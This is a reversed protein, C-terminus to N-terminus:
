PGQSTCAAANPGFTVASIADNLGSSLSSFMSLGDVHVTLRTGGPPDGDEWLTATCSSPLYIVASSAKNNIDGATPHIKWLRDYDEFGRFYQTATFTVSTGGYHSDYYLTVYAEDKSILRDTFEAVRVGFDYGNAVQSHSDTAESSYLIPSGQASVYLNGSKAFDCFTANGTNQSSCQFSRTIPPQSDITEDLGLWSTDDINGSADFSPERVKWISLKPTGGAGRYSGVAYVDHTGCERVLSINNVAEAGPSRPFATLSVTSWANTRSILAGTEDFHWLRVFDFHDNDGDNGGEVTLILYRNKQNFQGDPIMGLAPIVGSDAPYFTNLHVPVHNTAPAVDFFSIVDPISSGGNSRCQNLPVALVSRTQAFGSWHDCYDCKSPSTDSCYLNRDTRARVHFVTSSDFFHSTALPATDGPHADREWLNTRTAAHAFSNNYNWKPKVKFQYLGGEGQAPTSGSKSMFFYEYDPNFEQLYDPHRSMGQWHGSSTPRPVTATSANVAIPDPSTNM